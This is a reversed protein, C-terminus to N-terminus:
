LLRSTLENTINKSALNNKIVLNTERFVIRKNELSDQSCIINNIFNRLDSKSRIIEHCKLAEEGFKNFRRSLDLENSTYAVPKNLMLYEALFGGSDHILADSNIFLDIYDGEVLQCNELDRWRSFYYATKDTGWLDKKELLPRLFPHPKLALQIQNKYDNAIKLFVEAYDLFCAWDHGTNQHDKITWHPAWIIKKKSHGQPKWIDKKVEGRYNDLQPHGTIVTNKGKNRAHKITLEKHIPTECFNIWVLNLLPHDYEYSFFNSVRISYTTYCTLYHSYTSFLFNDSTLNNPNSFFIIDPKIQNKIDISTELKLDYGLLYNYKKKKCYELSKNFERRLFEKGKGIFPCVIVIPEFLLNESFSNYVSDYKWTDTNILFFVIKIKKKSLVKAKVRKLAKEHNKQTKKIIYLFYLHKLRRTLFIPLLRRLFSHM